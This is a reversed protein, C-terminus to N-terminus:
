IKRIRSFKWAYPIVDIYGLGSKLMSFKSKGMDSERGVWSIPVEGVKFGAIIPLLGTEANISFGNSRWPLNRAISAKYLKFNNTLDKQKIHFMFRVIYHFIRNMVKKAFPYNFLYSGKIFRSGIVGDYNNAEFTELLKRVEKINEVFDSDMTLVYQADPSLNAFGTKIARGVGCPPQRKVLKIKHNKIQWSEVISCTSDQSADDVVILELITNNYHELLGEIMKSINEEENHAILIVSLNEM